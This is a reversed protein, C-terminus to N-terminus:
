GGPCPGWGGLLTALDAADVTGSRDFDGAGASAWNGLLTALDAADVVGDGTLDTPCPPTQTGDGAAEVFGGAVAFTRSSSVGAQWTGVVGAMSYSASGSAGGGSGFEHASIAFQAGGGGRGSAVTAALLISGALVLRAPVHSRRENPRAGPANSTDHM